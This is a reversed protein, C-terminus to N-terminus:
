PVLTFTPSSVAESLSSRWSWISQLGANDAARQFWRFAQQRIALLRGASVQTARPGEVMPAPGVQSPL